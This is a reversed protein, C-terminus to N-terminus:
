SRSCASPAAGVNRNCIAAMGTSNDRWLIDGKGDGNFDGTGVVSWNTPIQGLGGTQSIQL